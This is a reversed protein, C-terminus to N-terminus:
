LKPTEAGCVLLEVRDGWGSAMNNAKLGDYQGNAYAICQDILKSYLPKTASFPNRHFDELPMWKVADVETIQAVLEQSENTPRCAAVLPSCHFPPTM